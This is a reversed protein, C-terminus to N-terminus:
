VSWLALVFRVSRCVKLDESDSRGNGWVWVSNNLGWCGSDFKMMVASIAGRAPNNPLRVLDISLWLELILVVSSLLLSRRVRSSAWIMVPSLRSIRWSAMLFAKGM